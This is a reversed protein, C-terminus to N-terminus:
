FSKPEPKPGDPKKGGSPTPELEPEAAPTWEITLQEKTTPKRFWPGLLARGVRVLNLGGFICLAVCLASMPVSEIAILVVLFTALPIAWSNFWELLTKWGVQGLGIRDLGKQM